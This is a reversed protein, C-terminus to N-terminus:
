STKIEKLSNEVDSKKYRVRTGIRLAPIKGTKTWDHLTPLSVGLLKATEKRTLYEVESKETQTTMNELFEQIVSKIIERLENRDM